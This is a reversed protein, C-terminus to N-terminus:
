IRNFLKSHPHYDYTKYKTITIAGPCFRLADDIHSIAIGITTIKSM